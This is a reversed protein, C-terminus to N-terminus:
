AYMFPTSSRRVALKGNVIAVGLYPSEAFNVDFSGSLGRTPVTVDLKGGAPPLEIERTAALPVAPDNGSLNSERLVERGNVRVVVDDNSFGDQFAFHVQM